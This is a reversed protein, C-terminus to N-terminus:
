FPRDEVLLILMGVGSFLVSYEVSGSLGSFLEKKEDEELFAAPASLFLLPATPDLLARVTEALFCSAALCFFAAESFASTFLLAALFLARLPAPFAAFTPSPAALPARTAALVVPPRTTIIM